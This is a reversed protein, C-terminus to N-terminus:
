YGYKSLHQIKAYDKGNIVGDNNIDLYYNGKQNAPANLTAKKWLQMIYDYSNHATFECYECCYDFSDYSSYGVFIINHNLKIYETFEMGCECRYVIYGKEECSAEKSDIIVFQHNHLYHINAELLAENFDNIVIRDWSNNDGYYYVDTISNCEEFASEDIKSISYGFHVAKLNVCEFFANPQITTLSNPLNIESLGKCAEFAEYGITKISKSFTINKLMYCNCFACLGITEITDPMVVSTLYRMNCFAYPKIETVEPLILNEILEDNVYLNNAYQTPNSTQNVFNIDCWDELSPINVKELRQCNIFADYGVKKLTSPFEVNKLASMSAFNYIGIETIGEEIVLNETRTILDSWPYDYVNMWNTAASRTYDYNFMKGTGSITITNNSYSWTANDGCKGSTTIPLAYASIDFASFISIILTVSLLLSLIRKM